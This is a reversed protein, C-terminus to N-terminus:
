QVTHAKVVNWPILLPMAMLVLVVAAMRGKTPMMLAVLIGLPIEILLVVGSFIFQRMLAGQLRPDNLIERYWEAGVFFANDQDFIDRISYNVVTMLPVIATFSVLLFVPLVLWWARHNQVKLSM